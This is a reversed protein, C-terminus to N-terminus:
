GMGHRGRGGMAVRVCVLMCGCVCVYVCLRLCVCVCCAPPLTCFCIYICIYCGEVGVRVCLCVCLCVCVCLISADVDYHIHIHLCVYRCIASGWVGAHQSLPAYIPIYYTRTSLSIIPARLYVYRMSPYSRTSLSIVPAHLYPYLHMYIPIYYTRTSLSIYIPIYMYCAPISAHLYVHLDVYRVEGFAWIARGWQMEGFARRELRSTSYTDRCAGIGAHGMMVRGNEATPYIAFGNSFSSSGGQLMAEGELKVEGAGEWGEKVV